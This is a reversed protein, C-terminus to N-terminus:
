SLFWLIEEFFIGFDVLLRWYFIRRLISIRRRRSHEELNNQSLFIRYDTIFGVKSDFVLIVAAKLSLLFRFDKHVERKYAICVAMTSGDRHDM